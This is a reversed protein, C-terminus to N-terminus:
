AEGELVFRMRKLCEQVVSRPCALNLREFGEGAKGFVYGEDLALKAKNQMVDELAKGDAIYGRLDVWLLYTGEPRRVKARPLHKQIYECAYDINGDIYELVQSLWEEGETYASITSSVVFANPKWLGVRLYLYSSFKKQLEENYIVINSAHIGALNFTKSPATCVIIHESYDPCAKALPTHVVGKRVIDSHIEDCVIWTGYKKAIETVRRLEEVTWVRGVPNHPSCVVLIRNNPNALTKDLNEYDMEYDCNTNKLPVDVVIRNNLEVTSAFPNYVPNQIVIGNGEETLVNVLASFAPMVGPSYFINKGDVTWGFRKNYWGAVAEKYEPVDNSSYGFIKRDVRGHLARIVPEACPFDMDAIWMPVTDMSAGAPRFDFKVSQTGSRDIIEDFNYKM